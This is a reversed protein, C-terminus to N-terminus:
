QPVGMQKISNTKTRFKSGGAQENSSGIPTSRRLRGANTSSPGLKTPIGVLRGITGWSAREGKSRTNIM